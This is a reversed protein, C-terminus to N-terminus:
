DGLRRIHAVVDSQTFALKMSAEEIDGDRREVVQVGMARRLVEKFAASRIIRIANHSSLLRSEPASPVVICRKASFM